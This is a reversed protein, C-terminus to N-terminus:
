CVTFVSLQRELLERIRAGVSMFADLTSPKRIYISAGLRATEFRDQPSDSSTLIAIPVHVFQPTERIRGLVEKGSMRPLNLDLLIVHPMETHIGSRDIHTVAQEGNSFWQLRFTIGHTKLAEKILFVDAPNDEVLLIRTPDPISVAETYDFTLRTAIEHIADM